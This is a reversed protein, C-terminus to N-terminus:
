FAKPHPDRAPGDLCIAIAAANTVAAPPGLRLTVSFVGGLESEVTLRGGLLETLKRALPLGLGCHTGTHQRGNDGRWLRDLTRPADELSLRSGSNAIAVETGGHVAEATVTLRGGEDVYSVANELLNTFVQRLKDRDSIIEGAPASQWIVEVSKERAATELPEWCERLLSDLCVPERSCPVQKAELRALCLLNGVMHQMQATITLCQLLDDRYSQADRPRSLSVEATSRLGALPTRLEHAVDASFAKERELAAEVRQLLSNTQDVVPTLEPPSRDLRVRASPEDPRLGALQRALEGLPRLGAGVIMTLLLSSLLVAVAGICGMVWCVRRLAAEVDATSRAHSIVIQSPEAPPNPSENRPSALITVSRGARGDPLRVDRLAPGAVDGGPLELDATGLSRSRAVVQGDRRRIQFYEAGEARAFEPIVREDFDFELRGDEQEVLSALVSARATLARDFEQRLGARIQWYLLAGAALLVTTTGAVAGVLLRARLSLTM